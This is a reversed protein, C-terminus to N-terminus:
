WKNGILRLLLRSAMTSAKNKLEQHLQMLEESSLSRLEAKITAEDDNWFGISGELTLLTAQVRNGKLAASARAYDEDNLEDRLHATLSMGKYHDAYINRLMRRSGIRVDKNLHPVM